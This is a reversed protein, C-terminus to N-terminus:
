KPLVQGCAKCTPVSLPVIKFELEKRIEELKDLMVKASKRSKYSNQNSFYPVFLTTKPKSYLRAVIIFRNM